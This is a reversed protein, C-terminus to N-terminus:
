AVRLCERPDKPMPRKFVLKICLMLRPINPLSLWWHLPGLALGLSCGRSWLNGAEVRQDNPYVGAEQVTDNGLACFCERQTSDTNAANIGLCDKSGALEVVFGM